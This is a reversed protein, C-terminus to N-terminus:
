ILSHNITQNRTHFSATGIQRFPYSFPPLDISIIRFGRCLFFFFCSRRRTNHGQSTVLFQINWCIILRVFNGRNNKTMKRKLSFNKVYIGVCSIEMFIDRKNGICAYNYGIFRSSDRADFWAHSNWHFM